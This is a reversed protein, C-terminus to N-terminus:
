PAMGTSNLERVNVPIVFHSKSMEDVTRSKGMGSSQVIASYKVYSRRYPDLPVEQLCEQIHAWLLTAGEGVYEAEWANETALQTIFFQIFHRFNHLLVAWRM